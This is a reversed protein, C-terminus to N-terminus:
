HHLGFGKTLEWRAMGIGYYMAAARIARLWNERPKRSAKQREDYKKRESATLRALDKAPTKRRFVGVENVIVPRQCRDAWSALKSFPKSIRSDVWDNKLTERLEQAATRANKPDPHDDDELEALLSVIADDGIKAPFPLGTLYQLWPKKPNRIAGQHTFLFPDYFHAAYVINSDDFPVSKALRRIEQFNAPGYILTHDKAISRITKILEIAHDRWLSKKVSPENLIEFFIYDASRGVYRRALMSWIAKLLKVAEEPKNKYLERFARDPHLDITIGFNFRRLRAIATDLRAAFEKAAVNNGFSSTLVEGAVPLRVYTYGEARLKRLVDDSPRERPVGLKNFWRSINIGKSLVRLRKAPVTHASDVQCAVPQSGSRDKGYLKTAAFIVSVAFATSWIVGRMSQSNRFRM